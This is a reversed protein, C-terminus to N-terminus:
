DALLEAVKARLDALALGKILYDTAGMEFCELRTDADGINSLMLVKLGSSAPDHRLAELVEFGNSEPMWVDLILLGPRHERVLRLAEAGRSAERVVHGASRLLPAYIARLDEDDDALVISAMEVGGM